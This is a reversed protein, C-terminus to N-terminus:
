KALDGALKLLNQEEPYRKVGLSALTAARDLEGAKDRSRAALEIAAVSPANDDAREFQEAAEVYEEAQYADRGKDFAEAALRVQAPTPESTDQARAAVASALVLMLVSTGVVARM